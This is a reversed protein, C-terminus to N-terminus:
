FVVQYLFKRVWKYGGELVQLTGDLGKGFWRVGYSTLAWVMQYSRECWKIHASVDFPTLHSERREAFKRQLVSIRRSGHKKTSQESDTVTRCIKKPADPDWTIMGSTGRIKWTVIPPHCRVARSPHLHFHQFECLTIRTHARLFTSSILHLWHLGQRNMWLHKVKYDILHFDPRENKASVEPQLKFTFIFSQRRRESQAIM